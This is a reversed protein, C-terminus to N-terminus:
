AQGGFYQRLLNVDVAKAMAEKETILEMSVLSALFQDMLVMGDAAGTQIKAPIQVIKNEQILSRIASNVAMIEVACVRGKGDARPLLQQSIVGKLVSALQVRIQQQQHPPFVDIIRAVTEAATNTHLTSLVLHGTEAATMATSITELDRMEGVMIIDPDERLAARLGEAFSDVDSGLERQNVISKGHPHMYEIPDELTIIHRETTQNVYNIMAALTTSKGSGTPGTVLVLGRPMAAFAALRDIVKRSYPFLDRIDKVTVSLVRCAAAWAGRQKFLNVRFRSVGSIAYAMDISKKDSEHHKGKLLPQCLSAIREPFLPEKLSPNAQFLRDAEARVDPPGSQALVTLKWLRGNLRVVPPVGATLHVDSAGINVAFTLLM